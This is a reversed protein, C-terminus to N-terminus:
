ALGYIQRLWHRNPNPENPEDWWTQLSIYSNPKWQKSLVNLIMPEITHFVPQFYAFHYIHSLNSCELYITKWRCIPVQLVFLVGVKTLGFLKQDYDM